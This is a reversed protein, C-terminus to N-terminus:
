LTCKLCAYHVYDVAAKYYAYVMFKIEAGPMIKYLYIINKVTSMITALIALPPLPKFGM